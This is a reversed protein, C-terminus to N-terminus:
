PTRDSRNQDGGTNGEHRPRHDLNQSSDLRWGPEKSPRADTVLTARNSLSPVTSATTSASESLVLPLRISM